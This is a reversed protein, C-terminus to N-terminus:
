SSVSNRRGRTRGQHIGSSIWKQGSSGSVETPLTSLFRMRVASALAVGVSSVAVYRGGMLSRTIRAFASGKGGEGRPGTRGAFQCAQQPLVGCIRMGCRRVPPGDRLATLSIVRVKKSTSLTAAKVAMLSRGDVTEM